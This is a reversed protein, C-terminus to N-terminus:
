KPGLCRTSKLLLLIGDIPFGFSRGYGQLFVIDKIEVYKQKMM